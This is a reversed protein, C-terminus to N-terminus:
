PKRTQDILVRLQARIKPGSLQSEVDRYGESKLHGRLEEMSVCAGSAALQFAREVTNRRVVMDTARYAPRARLLWASLFMALLPRTAARRSLNDAAQSESLADTSRTRYAPM